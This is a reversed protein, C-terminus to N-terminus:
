ARDRLLAGSFVDSPPQANTARGQSQPADPTMLESVRKLAKYVEVMEEAPYQRLVEQSSLDVLKVVFRGIDKELSFSLATTLSSLADNASEVVTELEKQQQRLREETDTASSAAPAAESDRVTRAGSADGKADVRSTADAAPPATSRPGGPMPPDGAGRVPAPHAAPLPTAATPSTVNM